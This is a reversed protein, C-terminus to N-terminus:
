SQKGAPFIVKSLSGARGPRSRFSCFWVSTGEWAHQCKSRVRSGRRITRDNLSQKSIRLRTPQRHMSSAQSRHFENVPQSRQTGRINHGRLCVYFVSHDDFTCLEVWADAQPRSRTRPPSGLPCEPLGVVYKILAM